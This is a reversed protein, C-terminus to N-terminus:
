ATLLFTAYKIIQSCIQCYVQDQGSDAVDDFLREEIESTFCEGSNNELSISTIVDQTFVIKATFWNSKETFSSYSKDCLPLILNTILTLNSFEIVVDEGELSWFLEPCNSSSADLIYGLLQFIAYRM